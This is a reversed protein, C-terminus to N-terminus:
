HVYGTRNEVTIIPQGTSSFTAAASSRGRADFTFPTGSTTVSVGSPLCIQNPPGGCQSDPSPLSLSATCNPTGVMEPVLPDLTFSVVGATVTVCVYRREAVAAKRAFQLAAKLKDHYGREEAVSTFDLRSIAFVALIAVVILTM